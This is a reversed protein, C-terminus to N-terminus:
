QFTNTSKSAIITNGMRIRASMEKRRKMIFSLGVNKLGKEKATMAESFYSEMDGEHNM